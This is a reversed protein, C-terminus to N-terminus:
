PQKLFPLEYSLYCFVGTEANGGAIQV